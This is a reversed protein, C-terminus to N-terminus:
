FVASHLAERTANTKAKNGVAALMEDVCISGKSLECLMGVFLVCLDVIGKKISRYRQVPGNGM